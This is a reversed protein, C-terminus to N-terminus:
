APEHSAPRISRLIQEAGGQLLTEALKRGLDDAEEPQGHIRGRVITKGDLSGVMADLRLEPISGNREVLRGHAGIPVQCGGELRRLLAREATTAFTTSADALGELTEAVEADGERMEIALAGQGVAPLIVDAPIVEGIAQDLGLRVVGARALIIGQWTSEELKKMRTHLNGRLDVVTVDPRLALLQCKRRLSGTAILAGYLQEKLTRVPNDPHPIFVDRVDERRCVAGIVLGAPVLTPLDKLSHVAIDIRGARLAEEIEKTFLGKDGIAALPSDLVRDGTTRIVELTTELWPHHKQLERAVWRAQWLALESGRSGIRLTKNEM